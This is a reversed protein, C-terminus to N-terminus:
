WSYQGIFNVIVAFKGFAVRVFGAALADTSARPRSVAYDFPSVHGEHHIDMM